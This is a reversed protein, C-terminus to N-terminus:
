LLQTTITTRPQLTFTPHSIPRILELELRLGSVYCFHRIQLFVKKPTLLISPVEMWKDGDAVECHRVAATFFIFTEDGEGGKEGGLLWIKGGGSKGQGETCRLKLQGQGLPVPAVGFQQFWILSKACKCNRRSSAGHNSAPALHSWHSLYLSSSMLNECAQVSNFFCVNNDTADEPGQVLFHKELLPQSLWYTMYVLFLTSHPVARWDPDMPCCDSFGDKSTCTRLLGGRWRWSQMEGRVRGWGGANLLTILTIVTLVCCRGSSIACSIGCIRPCFFAHSM